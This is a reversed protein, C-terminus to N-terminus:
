VEEADDAIINLGALDGFSKEGSEFELALPDIEEEEGNANRIVAMEEKPEEETETKEEEVPADPLEANFPDNLESKLLEGAALASEIAEVALDLGEISNLLVADKILDVKDATANKFEEVAGQLAELARAIRAKADFTDALSMTDNFAPEAPEEAEPEEEKELAVEAEPAVDQIEEETVADEKVEEESVAEAKGLTLELEELLKDIEM